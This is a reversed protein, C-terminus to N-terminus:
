FGAEKNEATETVVIEGARRARFLFEIALLFFAVAFVTMMIWNAISLDKDPYTGDTYESMALRIGYICLVVSLSAGIMDLIREMWAAASEPLVSVLVDVRVHAGQQLVWPAGLFVSVYLAYEVGENLWWIAGIGTKVILLNLPILIAFSGITIAALVILLYITRNFIAEIRDIQRRM